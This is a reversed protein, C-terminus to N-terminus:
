VPSGIVPQVRTGGAGTVLVGHRGQHQAEAAADAHQAPAGEVEGGAVQQEDLRAAPMLMQRVLGAARRETEAEEGTTAVDEEEVIGLREPASDV